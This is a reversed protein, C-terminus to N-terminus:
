GKETYFARIADAVKENEHNRGATVRLCKGMCRVLIGQKKLADFLAQARECKAWVFNTVPRAVEVKGPFDAALSQFLAYLSERSEIM